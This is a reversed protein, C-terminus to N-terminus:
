EEVDNGANDTGSSDSESQSGSIGNLIDQEKKLHELYLLKDLEEREAYSDKSNNRRKQEEKDAEMKAEYEVMDQESFNDGFEDKYYNITKYEGGKVRRLFEAVTLCIIVAGFIIIICAIVYAVNPNVGTAEGAATMKILKVAIYILYACGLLRATIGLKAKQAKERPTRDKDKKFFGFDKLGM